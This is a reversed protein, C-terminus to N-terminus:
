GALREIIRPLFIVVGVVFAGISVVLVAGASMDKIRKIADQRGPAVTDCLKEIATNIMELAIVVCIFLVVILMEITTVNLVFCLTIAFVAMVLHIRFNQETAAITQLGKLAFGFSNLFKRM